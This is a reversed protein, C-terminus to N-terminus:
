MTGVAGVLVTAGVVAPVKALWLVTVPAFPVQVGVLGGSAKVYWHCTDPVFVCTPGHVLIGDAVAM